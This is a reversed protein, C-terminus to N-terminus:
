IQLSSKETFEHLVQLQKKLAFLDWWLNYGERKFNILSLYIFIWSIEQTWVALANEVLMM